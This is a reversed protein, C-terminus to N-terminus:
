PLAPRELNRRAGHPITLVWVSRQPEDIEYIVRYGHPKKGHLLHRLPPKRKRAEPAVPCRFRRWELGCVPNERGNFWRVAAQSQAANKEPYLIKLDRVARDTERWTSGSDFALNAIVLWKDVVTTSLSHLGRNVVM